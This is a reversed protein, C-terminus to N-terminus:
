MMWGGFVPKKVEVLKKYDGTYYDLYPEYWRKTKIDVVFWNERQRGAFCEYPAGWASDMKEQVDMKEELKMIKKVADLKTKHYSITKTKINKSVLTPDHRKLVTKTKYLVEVVKYRNKM